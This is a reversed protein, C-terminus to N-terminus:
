REGIDIQRFVMNGMRAGYVEVINGVDYVCPDVIYRVQEEM